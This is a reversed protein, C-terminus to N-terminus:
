MEGVGPKFCGAEWVNGFVCTVGTLMRTTGWLGCHWLVGHHEGEGVHAGQAGAGVSIGLQLLSM